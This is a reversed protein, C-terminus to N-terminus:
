WAKCVSSTLAASPRLRVTVGGVAVASMASDGFRVMVRCIADVRTRSVLQVQLRGETLYRRGKAPASERPM